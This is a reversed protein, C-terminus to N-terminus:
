INNRSQGHSLYQAWSSANALHLNEPFPIAQGIRMSFAINPRTLTLYQLADTLKRYTVPDFIVANPSFVSPLKTTTPKSLPNCNLMNAQQLISAAYHAQSLFYHSMQKKIHIGLFANAEGLHKMSFKVNLQDLLKQIADPNDGM